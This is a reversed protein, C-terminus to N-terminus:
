EGDDSSIKYGYAMEILRLLYRSRSIDGKDADIKKIVEIPLSYTITYYKRNPYEELQKELNQIEVM